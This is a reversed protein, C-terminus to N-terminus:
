DFSIYVALHKPLITFQQQHEGRNNMQGGDIFTVHQMLKAAIVKLELRALDQGICQRHGGGFPIWAYSPHDRDQDENLFREPHFRDPDVKWHRRDKALNHFPITIQEGRHLQTRSHPLRDDATLTRVTGNSPPCYRLVEKIVADLYVLSDLQEIKWSTSSLSNLEEKIRLQVRQHKSLLHILWALATSTTEFGAVLFLLMEHLIEQRSLGRMEDENPTSPHSQLSHVLSAILSTRKRQEVSHEDQSQEQEIIRDLYKEITSMSRAYQRDFKLYIKALFEPMYLTKTFTDLFQKLAQTLDKRTSSQLDYDFAIWGFITLLLTQCQDVIDEHLVKEGCQRWQELLIKETCERIVEIQSVIRGRRFLPLTVAAHRKYKAGKNCILADHFLLSFKNIHIDGQDYINRHTFIHEIDHLDSICILRQPGMWFQYVDGFQKQLSQHVNAVSENRGIMGTQRLNGFFFEPSLGPIPGSITFYRKKVYLYIVVLCVIFILLTVLMARDVFARLPCTRKIFRCFLVSCILIAFRRM